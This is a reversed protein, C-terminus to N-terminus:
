VINLKRLEREVSSSNGKSKKNTQKDTTNQTKKISAEEKQPSINDFKHYFLRFDFDVALTRFCPLFDLCLM